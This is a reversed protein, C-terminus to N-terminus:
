ASLDSLLDRNRRQRQERPEEWTDTCHVGNMEWDGPEGQANRGHGRVRDLLEEMLEVPQENAPLVLVLRQVPVLM